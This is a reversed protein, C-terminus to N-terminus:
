EVISVRPLLQRVALMVPSLVVGFRFRPNELDVYIYGVELRHLHVHGISRASHRFSILQNSVSQERARKCLM